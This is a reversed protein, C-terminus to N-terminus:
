QRLTDGRAEVGPGLGEAPMVGHTTQLHHLYVGRDFSSRYQGRGMKQFLTCIACRQQTHQHQKRSQHTM